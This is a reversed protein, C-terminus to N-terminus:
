AIDKDRITIFGVADIDAEHPGEVWDGGPSPDFRLKLQGEEIKGSIGPLLRGVSRPDRGRQAAHGPLKEDNPDTRSLSVVRGHSCWGRALPIGLSEEWDEIEWHTAPGFVIGYQISQISLPEAINKFFSSQGTIVTVGQELMAHELAPFDEQISLSRSVVRGERLIPVWCGLTIGSPRCLPNESFVTAGRPVFAGSTVQLANKHLQLSSLFVPDEGPGGVLGVGERERERQKLDLRWCTLWAPECYARIREFLSLLAGPASMVAKLDIFVGEDGPWFDMLHPMFARSTIVTRIGLPAISRAVAETEDPDITFPLNVPTKGALFLGLNIVAPMPGPPLLVGIRDGPEPPNRMWRRAVATALGLTYARSWARPGNKSYEVFCDKRRNRKLGKVLAVELPEDFDRRASFAEVSLDWIAERVSSVNAQEREIPHGFAVQLPCTRRHPKKGFYKDREFSFTSDWLGDMYAPVVVCDAKRAILEFGKKLETTVGLRTLGGEPFICVMSGEDLAEITRTLAERSKGPRVPIAGFLLLFWGIGKMSTYSELVMFRVPRPCAFYMVFSDIYSVHNSLLLVGGTSPVREAGIKRTPYFLAFIPTFVARFFLRLLSKM